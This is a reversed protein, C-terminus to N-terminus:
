KKLLKGFFNFLEEKNIQEEIINISEYCNNQVDKLEGITYEEKQTGWWIIYVPINLFNSLNKLSQWRNIDKKWGSGNKDKCYWRLHGIINNSELFKYKKDYVWDVKSYEIIFMPQLITKNFIIGDFNGPYPTNNERLCKDICKLNKVMRFKKNEEKKTIKFIEESLTKCNHLILISSECNEYLKLKIWLFKSCNTPHIIINYQFNKNKLLKFIFEYHTKNYVNKKIVLNVIYKIFNCVKENKIKIIFNELYNNEVEFREFLNIEKENISLGECTFIDYNNSLFFKRLNKEIDKEEEVSSIKIVCM